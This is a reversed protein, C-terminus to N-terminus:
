LIDGKDQLEGAPRDVYIWHEAATTLVDGPQEADVKAQGDGFRNGDKRHLLVNSVYDVYPLHELFNVVSNAYLTGGITIDAQEDYAWPSLFQRIAEIAQQRYYDEDGAGAFRIRAQVKVQVYHANDVEVITASPVKTALYDHIDALLGTPVKPEYLSRPWVARVDPIVVVRVKGLADPSAPLCKAKYIRPFRELVLREYDWMSLARAKHRLRESVRTDFMQVAERARGGASTYPQKVRAIAPIPPSLRTISFSPLPRGYHDPANDHDEFTASIAQTHLAVTDCLAATHEKVSARIWHLDGPLLTSPKGAVLPLQLIGSQTLGRTTDLLVGGAESSSKWENGDLYSWTVDPLPLAPDPRGEVMQVLLSLVEPPNADRLGIYLEGENAYEPLLRVPPKGPGSESNRPVRSYGFPHVHFFAARDPSVQGDELSATYDVTLRKIKPTYPRNVVYEEPAKPTKNAIDIALSIAKRGAVSPYIEHGFDPANLAWVLYRSWTTLDRGFSGSTGTSFNGNGPAVAFSGNAFAKANAELTKEAGQEVVCVKVGFQGASWPPDYNRYWTALDPLDMWAIQFSMTDLKKTVLERHGLLLRSGVNPVSGFPDFPAAADLVGDDNQIQLSGLGKVEVSLSVGVVDLLRLEDYNPDDREPPELMLRLSPQRGAIGGPEAAIPEIPPFREDVTLKFAIKADATGAPSPLLVAEKTVTRWGDRTSVEFRMPFHAELKSPFWDAGDKLKLSLTLSITRKGEALALLPSSVAWGLTPPPSDLPAGFTKWGLREGDSGAAVSTADKAASLGAWRGNERRVFVSSITEIQSRNVVIERDTRYLLERGLSDQGASVLSGAPVAAQHSHPELEFLVNVRDPLPGKGTMRLFRRYYFELHRRTLTDLEHRAEQFLRLFALFLTFHPRFLEPSTERTFRKPQELFAMVKDLFAELEGPAAGIFQGWDPLTNGQDHADRLADELTRGDVPFRAPDLAPATRQAQSTGDRREPELPTPTTADRPM